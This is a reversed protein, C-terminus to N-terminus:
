SSGLDTDRTCESYVKPPSQLAILEGFNHLGDRCVLLESTNLKRLVRSVIAKGEDPLPGRLGMVLTGFWRVLDSVAKLEAKMLSEKESFKSEWCEHRETLTKMLLYQHGPSLDRRELIKDEAADICAFRQNEEDTLRSKTCGWYSWVYRVTCLCRCRSPMDRCVGPCNPRDCMIPVFTQHPCSCYQIAAFKCPMKVPGLSYQVLLAERSFINQQHYGHCSASELSNFLRSEQDSVHYRPGKM